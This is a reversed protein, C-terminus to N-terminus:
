VQLRIWRIDTEDSRPGKYYVVLIDGDPLKVTAPLGISFKGMEAWADKMESKGKTETKIWGTDLEIISDRDWSQGLDNSICAKLLPEDTRDMYLMVLRNDDTQVVPAPQGPIGTDFLKGWTRGNDASKRSHINLYKSEKNNYTWFVDMVTGDNLVAPRQDWYFINNEPDNSSISHERWTKGMDKSFLVVSSHRWVCDDYYRKNLEYHCLLDGNKLKLVPGTLAVPVGFHDDAYRLDTWTKGGDFSESVFIKSDLIGETEPNFFPLEPDSCDVWMLVGMVHDGGLSTPYICRFTGPTGELKASDPTFCAADWDAGENDSWALMGQQGELPLKNYASRFGCLWRGSPLVCIGPFANSQHRTNKESKFVIGSGTVKM